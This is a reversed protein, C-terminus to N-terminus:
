TSMSIFSCAHFSLTYPSQTSPLFPFLICNEGVQDDGFDGMAAANEKFPNWVVCSVPVVGGDVLGTASMKMTKGDGVGITVNVVDKGSPPTYVRDTLKEITIPDEGLTYEEGTIKDLASYGQLGKVYCQSGDLSARGDVLYYTHLLMQFDFPKSSTNKIGLTTIMKNAEIKISYVCICDFETNEDWKGGRSEKVDKLELVYHIGASDSRDYASSEDAKWINNRLFGHQPMSKDPQGFQPFVLPIGGRIAKSGDMKADRSVFLCERGSGTKFSVITAGYEHITVSAGSSSHTITRTSSTM